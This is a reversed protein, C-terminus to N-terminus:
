ISDRLIMCLRMCVIGTVRSGANKYKQNKLTM